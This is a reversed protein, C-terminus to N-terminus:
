GAMKVVIKYEFGNLWIFYVLNTLNVVFEKFM